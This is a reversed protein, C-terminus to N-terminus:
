NRWIEVLEVGKLNARLYKANDIKCWLLGDKSMQLLDGDLLDKAAVQQKEYGKVHIQEFTSDFLNNPRM